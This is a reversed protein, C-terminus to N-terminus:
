RSGRTLLTSPYSQAPSPHSVAVLRQVDCTGDSPASPVTTSTRRGTVGQSCHDPGRGVQWLPGSWGPPAGTVGFPGFNEKSPQTCSIKPLKSLNIGLFHGFHGKWDFKPTFKKPRARRFNNVNTGGMQGSPPDLGPTKKPSGGWPDLWGAGKEM